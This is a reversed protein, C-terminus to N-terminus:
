TFIDFKINSAALLDDNPEMKRAPNNKTEHMIGEDKTRVFDQDKGMFKKYSGQKKVNKFDSIQDM